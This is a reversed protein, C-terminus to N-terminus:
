KARRKLLAGITESAIPERLREPVRGWIARAARPGRQALEGITMEAYRGIGPVLALADALLAAARDPPTSDPIEVPPAVGPTLRDITEVADAFREAPPTATAAM